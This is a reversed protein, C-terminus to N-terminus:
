KEDKFKRLEGNTVEFEDGSFDYSHKAPTKKSFGVGKVARIDTRGSETKPHFQAAWKNHQKYPDKKPNIPHNGCGCWHITRIEPETKEESPDEEPIAGQVTAKMIKTKGESPEVTIPGLNGLLNIKIKDIM